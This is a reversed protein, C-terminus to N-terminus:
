NLLCDPYLFLNDEYITNVSNIENYTNIKSFYRVIKTKKTNNKTLSPTKM